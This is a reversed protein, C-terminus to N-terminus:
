PAWVIAITPRRAQSGRALGSLIVMHAPLQDRRRQRDGDLDRCDVRREDVRM